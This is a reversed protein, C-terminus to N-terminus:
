RGAVVGADCSILFLGWLMSLLGISVSTLLWPSVFAYMRASGILAVATCLSISLLGTQLTGDGTRLAGRFNMVNLPYMWRVGRITCSDQLLHMLHGSLLSAFIIFVPIEVPRQLWSVALLACLFLYLTLITSTFIAGPLSHLIGRHQHRYKKGYLLWSLFSLPYYITYRIAHGLLPLMFEVPSICVRRYLFARSPRTLIAARDADADPALSGTAVGCLIVILLGASTMGTWPILIALSSLTSLLLHEGGKM